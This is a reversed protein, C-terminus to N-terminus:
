EAKSKKIKIEQLLREIENERILRALREEIDVTPM